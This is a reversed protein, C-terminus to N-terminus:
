LIVEEKWISEFEVTMKIINCYSVFSDVYLFHLGISKHTTSSGLNDLCDPECIVTLNDAKRTPWARSALFM